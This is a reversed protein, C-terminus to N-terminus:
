VASPEYAPAATVPRGSVVARRRGWGAARFAFRQLLGPEAPLAAILRRRGAEALLDQYRGDALDRAVNIPIM